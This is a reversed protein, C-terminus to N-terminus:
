MEFACIKKECEASMTWIERSYKLVTWVYCRIIRKRLILDMTRNGLVNKINNFTNKAMDIRTRIKKQDREDDSILAGLYRSENVNEIELMGIEIKLEKDDKKMFKMVVTKDTNIKMGCKIGNAYSSLLHM